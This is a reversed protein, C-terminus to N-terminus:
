YARRQKDAMLREFMAEFERQSLKLLSAIQNIDGGPAHIQPSYHITHGGYQAAQASQQQARATALEASNAQMRASLNSRLEGARNKFRQQLNSALSGIAKIPRPAGKDIGILLGETIFGGYKTFPRSPSHIDIKPNSTFANSIATGLSRIKGVVADFKSSIGNLLGQMIMSGFGTFTAPLTVGFWSMVGAFASYFAPLPSWSIILGIIGTLGGSFATKIEGIKGSVFGAVASIKQGIWLGISEGFSRAGGAGVQTVSFFERFWNIIPQVFPAVKGWIASFANALQDFMPAIPAMGAKLGDWLGGFFAKIPNWYKYILLGAVAIAGIVLGLPTTLMARAVGLFGQKVLNLGINIKGFSGAGANIQQFVNAFPAGMKGVLASAKTANAASLGLMRFVAVGRSVEGLKLLGWISQIAQLKKYGTWMARFPMTVMSASYAFALAALKLGFFGAMLGFVTKILGKNNAIFPVIWGETLAQASQAFAQIDPAFVEGFQAATNEVVGGLQEVTSTLTSTKVKIRDQMSAQNDMKAIMADFGTLGGQGLISAVRGGEQGFIADAVDMVGQDGFKAKVKGFESELTGTIDRLSKMTGDKNFFEFKAGSATMMNKVESKMGKSAEEILKPGRSLQSLMMSFNTGFSSGELGKNAALGEVAYIQKQNELGTLGLTNAKPAYYSMAQFMDEKNLGAAFYARQTLDASKLLDAEKIGHAEMNKAFFTGDAIPIGMVTNLQATALGGGNAITNDSVGQTKLGRIMETFDKKDGPLAAGWQTALKDLKEYQGFGGDKQMMSIKLDASASEQEMFKKVSAFVPAAVVAAHGATETMDSRLQQRHQQASKQAIIAKNLGDQAINAKKIQVTMEAYQRSQKSLDLTKNLQQQARISKGFAENAKTATKIENGLAVVTKEAKGFAADFGAKLTAGIGVGILLEKTM